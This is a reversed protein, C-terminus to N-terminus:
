DGSTYSVAVCQVRVRFFFLLSFIEMYWIHCDVLDVLSSLINSVLMIGKIISDTYYEPQTEQLCLLHDVMTNERKEKAERKEDVLEQLFEDLRSAIKKIRNESDTIWNLVPLYDATNGAGFCSMGEAILERVRKAEPDDEANDGYYCKGAVMRIINNFTLNSFMSRM